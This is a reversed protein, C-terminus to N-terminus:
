EEIYRATERKFLYLGRRALQYAESAEPSQPWNSTSDHFLRSDFFGAHKASWVPSLQFNSDEGSLAMNYYNMATLVRLNFLLSRFLQACTVEDNGKFNILAELLDQGGAYCIDAMKFLKRLNATINQAEAKQIRNNYFWRMNDHTCLIWQTRYKQDAKPNLKRYDVGIEFYGKQTNWRFSDLKKLLEITKDITEYRWSYLNIFGTWPDIKGANVAQMYFIIGSQKGLKQFSEFRDTLQYARATGGPKNPDQVTEEAYSYPSAKFVLYNLKDILMKDFKQFLQKEVKFRGRKAGFNLDELIIPANYRIIMEALEHVVVSLYGEKLDKISDLSQWSKRAFDRAKERQDLRNYYDVVVKKTSEPISVSIDNLSRQEVIRGKSDIVVVYLLHREGRAIGIVHEYHGLGHLESPFLFDRWIKKNVNLGGKVAFNFKLPVHFFFKDVTYRYNKCIDHPAPRYVVGPGKETPNLYSQAIEGLESLKRAAKPANLFHYLEQYIPEPILKGQTDIRNVLLSGMSHTKKKPLSQPRYFLEAGGCLRIVTRRLNEPSFTQLWYMTHLNQRGTSKPSFDKNYIQFLYLTGSEVLEDIATASLSTDFDMRFGQEEVENYFDSIDGYEETPSFNFNYVQGWEHQELQAKYWEILPYLKTNRWEQTITQFGAKDDPALNTESYLSRLYDKKFEENQKIAKIDYEQGKYTQIIAAEELNPSNFHTQMWSKGFFIRPMNMSPTPLLKCTLKEWDQGVYKPDNLDLKRDVSIALYYLGGHRLLVAGYEKEKNRDWGACLKSNRFNLKFKASEHPKRTLYNRVKNYLPVIDQM